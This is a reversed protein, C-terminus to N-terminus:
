LEKKSQVLLVVAHCSIGEERGTYGMKETTTAKINLHESSTRCCESLLKKMASIHPALKPKECIITIDANGIVYGEEQMLSVVRQLLLLSSIDKFEESSDPFHGGM